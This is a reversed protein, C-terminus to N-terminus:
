FKRIRSKKKPILNNLPSAHQHVERLDQGTINLYRKTMDMNEHGMVKRLSFANGGNRLYMIAFAHRLDYPRIKLFIEKSYGDM